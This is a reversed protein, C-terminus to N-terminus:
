KWSIRKKQDITLMSKIFGKLQEDPNGDVTKFFLQKGKYIQQHIDRPRGIYGDAEFEINSCIM